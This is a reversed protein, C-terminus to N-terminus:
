KLGENTVTGRVKAQEKTIEGRDESDEMMMSKGGGDECEIQLSLGLAAHLLRREDCSLREM